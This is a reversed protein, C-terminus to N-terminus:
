RKAVEMKWKEANSNLMLFAKYDKPWINQGDGSPGLLGLHMSYFTQHLEYTITYALLQLIYSVINQWQRVDLM